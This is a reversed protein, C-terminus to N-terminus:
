QNELEQVELQLGLAHSRLGSGKMKSASKSMPREYQTGHGGSHVGSDSLAGQILSERCKGHMKGQNPGPFEWFGGLVLAWTGTAWLYISILAFGHIFNVAHRDRASDKQQAAEIRLARPRM